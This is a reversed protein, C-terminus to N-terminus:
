ALPFPAQWWWPTESLSVRDVWKVWWFGRRGPAILRLPFGHGASLARGGVRTALFLRGADEVPLRRVYGTLSFVEISAARDDGVLLDSLVVGEWEQEAYWGGTCDLVAQVTNRHDFLEEYAVDREGDADAIRLTWGELDVAPVSDNLWQTVPMAVPQFSGREYSGTSRRAHGPLAALHVLGEVAVYGAAAGGLLVGGRLLNRRSVDTRRPVTKRVLVHWVALPMSAVAAAVHVQMASLPGLSVLLGTAHGIGTVLTVAVSAALALSLTSGHPRRRLGRASITSKWPALAVIGLGAAGHTAVAWRVWSGGIAFSLAGTVVAAALLALLALNTRRGARLRLALAVVL